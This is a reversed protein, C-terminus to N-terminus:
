AARTNNNIREICKLVEEKREDRLIDNGGYAPVYPYKDFPRRLLLIYTRKHDLCYTSVNISLDQIPTAGFLTEHVEFEVTSNPGLPEPIDHVICRTQEGVVILEALAVIECLPKLPPPSIGEAADGILIISSAVIWIQITRIRM